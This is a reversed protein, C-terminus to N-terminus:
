NGTEGRPARAAVAVIVRSAGCKQMKGTIEAATAGSTMVDDVLLVTAGTLLHPTKVRFGDRVNARRAAIRLESQKRMIRAVKILRPCFKVNLRRALAAGLREAPNVGRRIRRLWYIPTPIVLDVKGLWDTQAATTALLEAMAAAVPAGSAQKAAIVAQQLLGSHDGLAIVGDWKLRLNRCIDCDDRGPGHGPPLRNGCRRCRAEERVIQDCCAACYEASNDTSSSLSDLCLPCHAPLLLSRWPWTAWSTFKGWNIKTPPTSM